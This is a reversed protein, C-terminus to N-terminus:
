KRIGHEEAFADAAAKSADDKKPWNEYIKKLSGERAEGAPLTMAWQEATEPEYSAITEVYGRVADNKAPGAPTAALWAGAAQYDKQTWDRIMQRVPKGMKEASVNEGMWEIWRGTEEPKGFRGLGASFAGVEEPSLKAEAMWKMAPDFGERAVGAAMSLLGRNGAAQRAKEDPLTALYDRLAALAATRENSTRAGEMVTGIADRTDKIGLEGILQFALRPDNATAGKIIGQKTEDTIAEPYKAGNEKVWKLAGLPDTKAWNALSTEVVQKGMGKDGMLDGSEVLLMLAAQPHDSSLTMISFGILNRRMEDELETSARVVAIVIKLQSADLSMMRDMFKMLRKQTAEDMPEGKKELGEMEKAFAIFEAAASKADGEANERGRDRKTLPGAKGAIVQDAAVGLRTAEAVLEAQHKKERTVQGHVRWGLTAGVALILLSIAISYKM